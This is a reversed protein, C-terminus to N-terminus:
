WNSCKNSGFNLLTNFADDFVPSYNSNKDNQYSFSNIGVIYNGNVNSDKLDVIWAGGSNGSRMPNDPMKAVSGTMNGRVGSVKMLYQGMGYNGPYGIATTLSTTNNIRYGLYGNRSQSKTYILAYDKGWNQYWGSIKDTYSSWTTACQWGISTVASGNSYMPYFAFNRHWKKTVANRVCHGATLLVNANKIFQASCYKNVGLDDTFYLKGATKFPQKSMDVREPISVGVAGSAKRAADPRTGKVIRDHEGRNIEPLGMPIANSLKEPNWYEGNSRANNFTAEPYEAYCQCTVMLAITSLLIKKM